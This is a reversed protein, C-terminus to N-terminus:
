DERPIPKSVGDREHGPPYPMDDSPSARNHKHGGGEAADKHWDRKKVIKNWTGNLITLLDNKIHDMACVELHWVFGRLAEMRAAQFQTLVHMGRIRQHRKLHCHYLQGLYAVIGMVRNFYRDGRSLDARIPIMINERCCYDCLYIAIDGLADEMERKRENEVSREHPAPVMEVARALEGVEEVLGMLPALSGLAVVRLGRYRADVIPKDGERRPQDPSITGAGLSQLYPTEQNGFNKISWAGVQFQIQEYTQMM